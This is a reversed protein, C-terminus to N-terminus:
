AIGSIQEMPASTLCDNILDIDDLPQKDIDIMLWCRPCEEFHATDGHKKIDKRLHIVGDPDVHDRLAGRVVAAKPNKSDEELAEFLSYIDPVDRFSLRWRWEKDFGQTVGLVGEADKGITKTTPRRGTVVPMVSPSHSEPPSALV